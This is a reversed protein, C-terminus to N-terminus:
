GVPPKDPAKSANDVAPSKQPRTVQPRREQATRPAPARWGNTSLMGFVEYRNKGRRKATYLAQDARRVVDGPVDGARGAAAGISCTQSHPVTVLLRKALDIAEQQTSRPALVGFEEGGLRALICHPPLEREWSTVADCLLFDGAQHGYTDNYQKFWDMDVILVHYPKSSAAAHGLAADWGARNVAGTLPDHTARSFFEEAETCALQFLSRLRWGAIIAMVAGGHLAFYWNRSTDFLGLVVGTLAPVILCVMLLTVERYMVPVTLAIQRHHSSTSPPVPLAAALVLAVAHLHYLLEAPVALPSTAFHVGPIQWLVDAVMLSMTGVMLWMARVDRRFATLVIRISLGFAVFDLVQFSSSLLQVARDYPSWGPQLAEMVYRVGLLDATVCLCAVTVLMADQIMERRRGAHWLNNFRLHGGIIGIYGFIWVMHTALSGNGTFLSVIRGLMFIGESAILLLGGKSITDDSRYIILAAIILPPIRTCLLGITYENSNVPFMMIVVLYIPTSGWVVFHALPGPRIGFLRNGSDTM